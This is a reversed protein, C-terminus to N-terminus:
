LLFTFLNERIKQRKHNEYFKNAFNRNQFKKFFNRWISPVDAFEALIYVFKGSNKKQFEFIIQECRENKICGIRPNNTKAVSIISFKTACLTARIKPGNFFWEPKPGRSTEIFYIVTSGEGKSCWWHVLSTKYFWKECAITDRPRLCSTLYCPPIWCHM